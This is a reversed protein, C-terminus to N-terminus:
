CLLKAKCDRKECVKEEHTTEESIKKEIQLSSQWWSYYILERSLQFLFLKCHM